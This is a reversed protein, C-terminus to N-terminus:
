DKISFEQSKEDFFIKGQALAFRVVGKDLHLYGDSLKIGKAPIKSSSIIEKYANLYAETRNTTTKANRGKKWWSLNSAKEATLYATKRAGTSAPKGTLNKCWRDLINKAEEHLM